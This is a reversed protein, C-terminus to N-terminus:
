KCDRFCLNQTHSYPKVLIRHRLNEHIIIDLEKELQNIESKLHFNNIVCHVTIIISFFFLLYMILQFM